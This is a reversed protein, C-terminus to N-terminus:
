FNSYDPDYSLNDDEDGDGDKDEPKYPPNRYGCSFLYEGGM